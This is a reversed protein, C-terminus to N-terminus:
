KRTLVDWSHKIIVATCCPPTCGEEEWREAEGGGGRREGEGGMERRILDREKEEKRGRVCQLWRSTSHYVWLNPDRPCLPDSEKTKIRSDRETEKRKEHMCWDCPRLVIIAQSGETVRLCTYLCYQTHSLSQTPQSHTPQTHSLFLCVCLRLCTCPSVSICVCFLCLCLCLCLRVCVCVAV